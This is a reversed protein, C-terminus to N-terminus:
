NLVTYILHSSVYLHACATQTSQYDVCNCTVRDQQLRQVAPDYVRVAVPIYLQFAVYRDQGEKISKLSHFIFGAEIGETARQASLPSLQQTDYHLGAYGAMPLPLSLPARDPRRHDGHRQSLHAQARTVAPM